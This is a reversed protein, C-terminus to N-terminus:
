RSGRNVLLSNVLPVLTRTNIPKTVFADCGAAMAADQDTKMANATVAVIVVGRHAPDSRLTRALSLGDAGPLRLDLMLLEIPEAALIPLAEEVSRATQVAFGNASLLASILKVNIEVDDVVLCKVATM